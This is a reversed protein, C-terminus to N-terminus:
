SASYYKWLLSSFYGIFLPFVLSAGLRCLTFKWGMIPAEYVLVRHIGMLAWSSLFSVLPGIGAGAKLIVAMIPFLVFPGGPMVAGALAGIFLGKFGSDQGLMQAMYERPIIKEMMGALIFAVILIPMLRLLMELGQYLGEQALQLDKKMAIFTTVLCLTLIFIFTAKM